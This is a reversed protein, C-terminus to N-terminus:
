RMVVADAAALRNSAIGLNVFRDWYFSCVFRMFVLVPLWLLQVFFVDLCRVLFFRFLGFLNSCFWAVFCCFDGIFWIGESFFLHM